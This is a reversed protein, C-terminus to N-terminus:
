PYCVKISRVRVFKGHSTAPDISLTLDKTGTWKTVASLDTFGGPCQKYQGKEDTVGIRTSSSDQDPINIKLIPKRSFDIQKIPFTVRGNNEIKTGSM